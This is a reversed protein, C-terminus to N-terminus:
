YTLPPLLPTLKLISFKLEHGLELKPVGKRSFPTLELIESM